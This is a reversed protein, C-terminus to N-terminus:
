KGIQMEIYKLYLQCYEIRNQLKKVDDLYAKAEIKDSQVAIDTLKRLLTYIKDLEKLDPCGEGLNTPPFIVFLENVEHLIDKCHVGKDSNTVYYIMEKILFTITKLYLLNDLNFTKNGRDIRIRFDKPLYKKLLHLLLKFTETNEKLELLESVL